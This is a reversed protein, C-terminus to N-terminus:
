SMDFTRNEPKWTSTWSKPWFQFNWFGWIKQKSKSKKHGLDLKTASKSRNIHIHFCKKVVQFKAWLTSGFGSASNWSSCLFLSFHTKYTRAWSIRWFSKKSFLSVGGSFRTLIPWQVRNRPNFISIGVFFRFIKLNEIKTM